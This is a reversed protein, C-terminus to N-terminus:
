FLPWFILFGRLFWSLRPQNNSFPEFSLVRSAGMDLALSTFVGINGGCDIVVDGSQIRCDGKFYDERTYIEHYIISEPYKSLFRNSWATRIIESDQNLDVKENTGHAYFKSKM